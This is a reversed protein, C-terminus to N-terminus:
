GNVQLFGARFGAWRRRHTEKHLVVYACDAKELLPRDSFNDSIVCMPGALFSAGFKDALAKPKRGTLDMAYFGTLRDGRQALTSAVYEAGLAGALRAVVPELSASALVVRGSAMPVDLLSWVSPVRRNVLLEAAYEGASEDLEAVSVGRLLLLVVHKLWHRGTLQEMITFAFRLPSRRGTLAGLLVPRIRYRGGRKFHHRLLGLTTDDLVLTGCVDVIFVEVKAQNATSM